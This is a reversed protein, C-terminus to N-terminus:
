DGPNNFWECNYGECELLTENAENDSFQKVSFSELTIELLQLFKLVM